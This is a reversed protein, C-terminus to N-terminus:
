TISLDAGYSVLGLRRAVSQSAQNEWSTSYLPLRGMTRVEAAWAAVVATAYGRGRYPALTEVGAEAAVPSLRSSFCLAVAEGGEVVAFCPEIGALEDAVWPFTRTTTTGDTLRMTPIPRPPAIGEPCWWAPGDYIGRIPAHVALADQLHDFCALPQRLNTSTPEVALLGDLTRVLTPPLDHRFRWLNGEVTRGVFLRPAPPDGPENTALLRGAADHRFLTAAQWEMLARESVLDTGDQGPM